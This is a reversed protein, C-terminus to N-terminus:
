ACLLRDPDLFVHCPNKLWQYLIVFNNKLLETSLMIFDLYVTESVWYFVAEHQGM